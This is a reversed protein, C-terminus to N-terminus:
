LRIPGMLNILIADVKHPGQAVHADRGIELHCHGRLRPRDEKVSTRKPFTGKEILRLLDDFGPVRFIDAIGQTFDFGTM